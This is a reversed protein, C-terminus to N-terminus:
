EKKLEKRIEAFEDLLTQRLHTFNEKVQNAIEEDLGSTPSPVSTVPKQKIAKDFFNKQWSTFSEVAAIMTNPNDADELCATLKQIINGSEESIEKNEALLETASDILTLIVTEQATPNDNKRKTVIQAVQELDEAQPQGTIKAALAGLSLATATTATAVATKGGGFLSDLKDDIDDGALGDSQPPEANLSVTAEPEDDSGFFSDLKDQLDNTPDEDLEAVIRDEQFGGEDEDADSLAAVVSDDDPEFYDAELSAAPAEQAAIDPEEDSIGFFSDLRGELDMSQDKEIADIAMEERFGSEEDADDLAPIISDFDDEVASAAPEEEEASGFLSDIQGELEATSENSYDQQETSGLEEVISEDLSAMHTDATEVSENEEDDVLFLDDDLELESEKDIDIDKLADSFDLSEDDDVKEDGLDFEFESLEDDDLADLPSESDLEEDAFLDDLKDDLDTTSLQEDDFSLDDPTEINTISSLPRTSKLEEEIFDDTVTSTVPHIADPDLIDEPYQEDSTVMATSVYGAPSEDIIDVVDNDSLSAIIEEEPVYQNEELQDIDTDGLDFNFDLDDETEVTVPSEYDDELAEVIDDPTEGITVETEVEPEEDDFDLVQDVKDMAGAQGLGSVAVGAIIEKLANLKSVRDILVEQRKDSPMHPNKLLIKLGDFFTHLLTFSDPHAKVKEEKIYTGLAQLGNVLVLGSENDALEVQLQKAQKNFQDLGEETVEWELGLITANLDALVDLEAEPQQTQPDEDTSEKSPAVQSGSPSQKGIQYQLVKFKRIDSKLLTTIEDGNINPSSIIKEYNYFLTLLLKMANPHAYAGEVRLYKGVKEIGQLYVQAIKDGEWLKRLNAVEDTLEELIDDSIEWDLSLIISKLRTLPSDDVGTFEFLDVEETDFSEDAFRTLDEVGDISQAM